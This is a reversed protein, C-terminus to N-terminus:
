REPDEVMERQTSIEELREVLLDSAIPQSDKFPAHGAGVSSNDRVAVTPTLNTGGPTLGGAIPDRSPPISNVTSLSNTPLVQPSSAALFSQPQITQPVVSVNRSTTTSLTPAGSSVMYISDGTSSISVNNPAAQSHMVVPQQQQQQQQLVPPQIVVPTPPVGSSPPAVTTQLPATQQQSSSMMSMSTAISTPQQQQQMVSQTPQQQQQQSIQNQQIQQQPQQQQL